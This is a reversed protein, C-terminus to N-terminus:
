RHPMIFQREWTFRWTASSSDRADRLLTGYTDLRRVDQHLINSGSIRLITASDMQWALYADLNRLPATNRTWVPALRLQGDHQYAFSAGTKFAGHKWDVGVSASLPTQGALRNDPGPVNDVSSWNRALSGRWELGGASYKGELEIGRVNASGINEPTQIWVGNQVFLRNAILGDIRRAYTSISVMGQKGFYHEYAADLGWAREPKLLPNGQTDPNTPSNNNDVTYRRPVLSFLDPAKYTRTLALRLQRQADFKRVAHVLPSAGAEWRMGAALSWGADFDAEYQAYAASRRIRVKYREDHHQTRPGDFMDEIRAESRQSRSLDWGLLLPGSSYKGSSSAGLDTVSGDVVHLGDYAGIGYFRFDSKRRLASLAGKVEVKAGSGLRVSWQLDSRWNATYQDVQSGSIPYESEAGRLTTEEVRKENSFHLLRVFHQTVLSEGLSLRPALTLSRRVIGESREGVRLLEPSTETDTASRPERSEIATLGMSWNDGALTASAYPSVGRADRQAGLKMDRQANGTRKRLIINITGAIARNGTAATAARLIEIREVLEPSLSALDFGAPVPDGNLLMQTYGGGLGRMRIEGGQVTVGPARQLAEAISRDGHRLLEERSISTVAASEQRRMETRSGAVEVQQMQQAYAHSVLAALPLMAHTWNKM